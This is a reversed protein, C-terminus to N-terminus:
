GGGRKEEKRVDSATLQIVREKSDGDMRLPIEWVQSKVQCVGEAGEQCPYYVVAVKLTQSGALKEAPVKLEFAAKPKDLKGIHEYKAAGLTEIVYQVPALPSLKFGKALHLTVQLTLEGEKAVSTEPLKTTAPNPMFPRAATVPPRPPEVGQLTLTKVAKTKLNIVRILHNNTDAVYLQDGAISVGAPEDFRPPQDEKGPRGDGLWTTCSRTAPDLEKIKNNYTDAVYLKGQYFVVGLAHQLRVKSGVGDEDGFDFLGEGVLTKVTGDGKLSIARIASIESDAVYLWTGDSTLGSPQAFMSTALTGDGKNEYGNGAFPELRNTKLNMRWIQHHGAMAIYLDDGALWLDWPSNLGISRADGIAGRDRGQEGTGAITRVTRAKLDLARLLHNKRDAVYLTDGRLVMGQPDNFTAKDFSGDAKGDEGTGIIDLKKGDLDTIIIRHHSSDAIFLRKGAADALVKGPFYLPADKRERFKALDFRLPEENLTKKDRHMKILKDIVRDLVDYNGEGSVGGIINGEPDIVGLTPWSRVGYANWIRHNADNVVPHEINYRLIAERINKSDKETDFKASHVGIVVLQNPYKKELKALDPLVHICNICCYTWFDLLVIKGRLDKLRIPGACNLWEVGGDLEPAQVRAPEQNPNDTKAAPVTADEEAGAAPRESARAKYALYISGGVVVVTLVLVAAPLTFRFSSASRGPHTSDDRM